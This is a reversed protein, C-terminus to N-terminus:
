CPVRGAAGGLSALLAELEGKDLLGSGDTDIHRFMAKAERRM